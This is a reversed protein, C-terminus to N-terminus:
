MANAQNPTDTVGDDYSCGGNNSFRNFWLHDLGLWHGVEHTATRGLDFGNTGEGISNLDGFFAYDIVIGDLEPNSSLEEPFSSYGAANDINAVWINM